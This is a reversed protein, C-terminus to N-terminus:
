IQCAPQTFSQLHTHSKPTHHGVVTTTGEKWGRIHLRMQGSLHHVQHYDARRARVCAISSGGDSEVGFAPCSLGKRQPMDHHAAGPRAANVTHSLQSLSRLGAHFIRISAYSTTALCVRLLPDASSSSLPMRGRCLTRYSVVPRSVCSVVLGTEDDKETQRAKPQTAKRGMMTLSESCRSHTICMWTWWWRARWESQASRKALPLAGATHAPTGPSKPKSQKAQKGAQRKAQWPRVIRGPWDADHAIQRSGTEVQTQTERTSPFPM